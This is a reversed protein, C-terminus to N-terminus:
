EKASSDYINTVFSNNNKLWDRVSLGKKLQTKPYKQHYSESDKLEEETWVSKVFDGTNVISIKDIHGIKNILVFVLKINKQDESLSSYKTPDFWQCDAQKKIEFYENEKANHYDYLSHSKREWGLEKTLIKSIEKEKGGQGKLSLSDVCSLDFLIKM